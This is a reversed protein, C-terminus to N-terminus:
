HAGAGSCMMSVARYNPTSQADTMRELQGLQFVTRTDEVDKANREMLKDKPVDLVSGAKILADV